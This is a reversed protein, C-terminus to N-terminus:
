PAPSTFHIADGRVYLLKFEGSHSLTQQAVVVGDAGLQCAQKQLEPEAEEYVARRGMTLKNRRVYVHIRGLAEHAGEPAKADFLQIACNKERPPRKIGTREVNSRVGSFLGGLALALVLRGM